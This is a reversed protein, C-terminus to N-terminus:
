RTASRSPRLLNPFDSHFREIWRTAEAPPLWRKPGTAKRLERFSNERHGRHGEREIWNEYAIWWSLFPLAAHHLDAPSDARLLHEPWKGPVPSDDGMWLFCCSKPRVYIFGSSDTEGYWGACSGHLDIFGNKWPMRYCSTGKLGESPRKVFGFRTLLNGSPHLVDRGLFYMQQRLGTALDRWLTSARPGNGTGASENM